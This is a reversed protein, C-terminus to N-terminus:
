NGRGRARAVELHDFPPSWKPFTRTGMALITAKHEATVGTVANGSVLADCMASIQAVVVPDDFDLDDFANPELARLTSTCVRALAGTGRAAEEIGGILGNLVLYRRIEKTPVDGDAQITQANLADAVEPDSFGDFAADLIADTRATM